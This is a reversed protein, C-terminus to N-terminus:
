THLGFKLLQKKLATNKEVTIYFTNTTPTKKHKETIKSLILQM